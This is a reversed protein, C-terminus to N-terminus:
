RTPISFRIGPAKQTPAYRPDQLPASTYPTETGGVAGPNLQSNPPIPFVPPVLPKLDVPPDPKDAQAWVNGAAVMSAVVVGLTFVFHRPLGM